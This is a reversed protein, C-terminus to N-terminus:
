KMWLEAFGRPVELSNTGTPSFAQRQIVGNRVRQRFVNFYWPYAMGPMRGDVGVLPDNIRAGEGAVPVRLEVSWSNTGRHVAAEAGSRWRFEAGNGCDSDEINGAPDVTIRYYAHTSTELLVQVFDGELVASENSGPAVSKLGAMDPETCRIGFCLFNGAAHARFLTPAEKSGKGTATDALMGNPKGWWDADDIRGDLKKAALKPQPFLRYRSTADRPRSLQRQLGHLPQVYDAVLRIRRGYVSDPDAAAQATALLELARGIHGADNRMFQWNQESYHIFAKMQAAAPGYFLRYYEELMADVDQQVDWWLRATVYLTLHAVAQPNVDRSTGSSPEYCEISEGRSIGKLARLQEAIAHSYYVPFGYEASRPWNFLVRDATFITKSPLKELWAALLRQFEESKQPDQSGARNPSIRLALNPSLKDITEPPLRYAGYAVSSVLRDPHTKYVEAAVRNAYGWVYDSMVGDWGRELTAKGKCQDCECVGASYGDVPDISLVREGFRDFVARVYKVHLQFVEESSLCPAGSDKHNVARKGGWIAYYEPHAAKMEDRRHVYKMGHCQQTIGRVDQGEHLGLRLRWLADDRSVPEHAQFWSLKRMAYDPRVTRHVDPLAITKRRPVVEGLEGPMYWRVGLGRLFEYVAHLTGRDDFAWVDLESSYYMFTSHCPNWFTQGTVEDWARNMRERERPERSRGWPEIPVYDKDPGVLALWDPGSVMRFAGYKLDEIRIGLRQTYPSLGVYIRAPVSGSPETVIPLTAGSIKAIYTQLERAALRTMRTPKESALIEARPQGDTVLDLAFAFSSLVLCLASASVFAPSM